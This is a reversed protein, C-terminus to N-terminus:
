KTEFMKKGFILNRWYYLFFARALRAHGRVSDGLDTLKISGPCFKTSHCDQAAHFLRRFVSSSAVIKLCQAYILGQDTAAVAMCARCPRSRGARGLPNPMAHSTLRSSAAAVDRQSSCCLRFSLQQCLPHSSHARPTGSIRYNWHLCYLRLIHLYGDFLVSRASFLVYGM